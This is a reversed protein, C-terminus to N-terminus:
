AKAAKPRRAFPNGGAPAKRKPGYGGGAVAANGPSNEPQEMGAPRRAFPNSSAAAGIGGKAGSGM